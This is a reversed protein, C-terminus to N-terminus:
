IICVCLFGSSPSYHHYMYNSQFCTYFSSGGFSLPFYEVDTDDSSEAGDKDGSKIELSQEKEM